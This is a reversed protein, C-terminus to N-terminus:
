FGGRGASPHNIEELSKRRDLSNWFIPTEMAHPNRVERTIM